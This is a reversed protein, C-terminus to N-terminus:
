PRPPDFSLAYRSFLDEFRALIRDAGLYPCTALWAPWDLAALGSLSASAMPQHSWHWPEPLYGSRDGRYPRFFGFDYAREDLFTLLDACPGGPKWDEVELRPVLNSRDLFVDVDTGWHHRSWGPPASYRLVDSVAADETLGRVRAREFKRNWIEIQRRVGRHGSVAALALGSRRATERLAEFSEAVAEHLCAAHDRVSSVPVLHRDVLSFYEEVALTM